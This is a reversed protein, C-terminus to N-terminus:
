NKNKGKEQRLRRRTRNIHREFEGSEILEALVYQDFIPVSCSYFGLRKYFTKVLPKPIIMYGLRMSPSITKSFTNVYIVREPALSFVTDESKSSLTFESDFDDEIIYGKRDKAWSVYEKKKSVTATIGSPFSNYPTIHLVNASTRRLESTSIGEAGMKLMDYRIGYVYYINRIKEYSPNEIAYSMVKGLLQIILGYLYEAGSGIVIQQTDVVIGRNRALYSSLAIKLEQCGTNPSKNLINEGYVTIVKRMAKSLVSFPFDGTEIPELIKHTNEIANDNTSFWNDRKYSVYYGSRQVSEVYGEDCLMEYAHQVTIVSVCFDEAITRKSPMRDGFIYIGEIIQNKLTTYLKMYASQNEKNKMKENM